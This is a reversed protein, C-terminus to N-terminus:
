SGAAPAQEAAPVAEAVANPADITKGAEAIAQDAAATAANVLQKAKLAEEDIAATQAAKNRQNAAPDLAEITEIEVVEGQSGTRGSPSCGVLGVLHTTIVLIAAPPVLRLPLCTPM